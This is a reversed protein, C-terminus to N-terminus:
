EPYPHDPRYGLRKGIPALLAFLIKQVFRPPSSPYIVDDYKKMMVALQLLNPMGEENTKDDQALAFLSRLFSDFRDAPRFEVKVQLEESGDNWWVHPTGPPITTEEGATYIKKEGQEQLCLEGKKVLFHETQAPHIHEAAVVGGPKVLIDFKLLKGETEVGTQQFIIKEGTKPNEIVKRKPSM